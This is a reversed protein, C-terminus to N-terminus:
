SQHVELVHKLIIEYDNCNNRCYVKNSKQPFWDFNNLSIDHSISNKYHYTATTYLSTKFGIDQDVSQCVTLCVCVCM